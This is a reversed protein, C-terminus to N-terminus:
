WWFHPICCSHSFSSLASVGHRRCRRTSVVLFPFLILCLQSHFTDSVVLLIRLCCRLGQSTVSASDSEACSWPEFFERACGFVLAIFLLVSLFASSTLNRINGFPYSFRFVHPLYIVVPLTYSALSRCAGSLCFQRIRM